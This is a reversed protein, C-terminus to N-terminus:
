ATKVEEVAHQPRWSVFLAVLHQDTRDQIRQFDTLLNVETFHLDMRPRDCHLVDHNLVEAGDIKELNICAWVGGVGDVDAHLHGLNFELGTELNPLEWRKPQPNLNIVNTDAVRVSLVAREGGLVARETYFNGDVDVLGLSQLNTAHRSEGAQELDEGRGDVEEIEVVVCAFDVNSSERKPQIRDRRWDCAEEGVEAVSDRDGVRCTGEHIACELINQFVIAVNVVDVAGVHGEQVCRARKEAHEPVDNIVDERGRWVGGLRPDGDLLQDVDDKL